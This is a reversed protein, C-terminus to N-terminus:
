TEHPRDGHGGFGHLRLAWQLGIIAGKVRPMLWFTLLITLPLWIAAHVWLPPRWIREVLLLGPIVLHAVMTMTFYPPADDARQHHLAAGCSACQDVSKLYGTYLGAEGCAPCCQRFGRWMALRKSRRM